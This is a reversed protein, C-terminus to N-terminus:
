GLRLARHRPHRRRAPRNVILTADSDRVNWETRQWYGKSSTAVLGYRKRLRWNENYRGGPFWGGSPIGLSRATDLAARDVGTQGGSVIKRILVLGSTRM